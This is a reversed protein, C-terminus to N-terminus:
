QFDAVLAALRADENGAVTTTATATQQGEAPCQALMVDFQAQIDADDVGPGIAQALLDSVEGIDEMREGLQGVIEDVKDANVRESDRKLMEANKVFEDYVRLNTEADQIADLQSECNFKIARNKEAQNKRIQARKLANLAAPKSGARVLGRAEETYREAEKEQFAIKKDLDVVLQLVSNFRQERTEVPKAKKGFLWAM